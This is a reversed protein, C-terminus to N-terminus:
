EGAVQRYGYGVGIDLTGDKVNSVGVHLRYTGTTPWDTFTSGTTGVNDVDAFDVDALDIFGVAGVSERENGGAVGDLRFHSAPLPVRLTAENANGVTGTQLVLHLTATNTQFQTLGRLDYVLVPLGDDWDFRAIRSSYRITGTQTNETGMDVLEAWEEGYVLPEREALRVASVKLIGTSADVGIGETIVHGCLLWALEATTTAPNSTFQKGLAFADIASRVARVKPIEDNYYMGAIQLGWDAPGEIRYVAQRTLPEILEQNNNGLAMGWGGADVRLTLDIRESGTDFVLHQHNTLYADEYAM